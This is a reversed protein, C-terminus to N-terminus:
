QKGIAKRLAKGPTFRVAKRAPITIAAGTTPNRGLRAKYQRTSFIGVGPCTIREGEALCAQLIEGVANLARAADAARLGGKAAVAKILERKNM